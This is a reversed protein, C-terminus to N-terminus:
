QQQSTAYMELECSILLLKELSLLLALRYLFIYRVVIQGSEWRVTIRTSKLPYKWQLM